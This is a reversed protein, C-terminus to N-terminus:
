EGELYIILIIFNIPDNHLKEIRKDVIKWFLKKMRNM